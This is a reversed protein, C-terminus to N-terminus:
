VRKKGDKSHIYDQVTYECGYTLVGTTCSVKSYDFSLQSAGVTNVAALMGNIGINRCSPKKAYQQVYSNGKIGIMEETCVDVGTLHVDESILYTQPPEKAVTEFFFDTKVDELCMGVCFLLFSLILCLIKRKQAKVFDGGKKTNHRVTNHQSLVKEIIKATKSGPSHRLWKGYKPQEM